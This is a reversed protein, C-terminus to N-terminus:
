VFTSRKIKNVVLIKEFIVHHRTGAGAYSSVLGAHDDTSLTNVRRTIQYLVYRPWRM